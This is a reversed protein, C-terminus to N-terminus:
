YVVLKSEVVGVWRFLVVDFVSTCPLGVKMLFYSPWGFMPVFISSTYFGFGQVVQHNSSTENGKFFITGKWTVHESKPAYIRTPAWCGIKKRAKAGWQTSFNTIWWDCGLMLWLISWTPVPNKPQSTSKWKVMSKHYIYLSLYEM